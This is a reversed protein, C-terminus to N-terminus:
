SLLYELIERKNGQIVNDVIADAMAGKAYVLEHIREDISNRCIITHVTVNHKQGIRHCRDEAQEKNARNWPEDLFIEVTGAHLTIGTGMAGITGVIVDFKGNQFEDVLVQRDAEPTQGTIRCVNLKMDYLLIRMIEDTM